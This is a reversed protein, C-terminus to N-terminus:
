VNIPANQTLCLQAIFLSLIHMIMAVLGEEEEGFAIYSATFM